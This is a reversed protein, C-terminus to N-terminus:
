DNGDKMVSFILPFIITADGEVYVYKADEKIKGWSVAERVKAGSLSGDYETATSVYVAYDLGDRLINAGITHHKSVGGGLIIGGTKKSGMVIDALNKMDGTIDISFDPNEQKFFYIQLGMAGDTFAPCFIPINNKSAWYIISNEDDIIKGMEGIIESPSFAKGTKKQKDYINRFFPQIKKEFWVYRDNPVFVNGIRNIGKKRLDSDDADFKGLLFPNGTKMLDEEISGVSTVIVDIMKHRTMYAFIERLGSSVMNSTFSLFIKCDDKQMNRIVDAANSLHTAQFGINKMGSVLDSVKEYDTVGKIVDLGNDANLERRGRFSISREIESPSFFEEIKSVAGDVDFENCSFIDIYAHTKEPYTHISIHSETIIVFGTIGSEESKKHEYRVVTPDCLKKMNLFNVIENLFQKIKEIDNLAEKDCGYCDLYLHNGEGHIHKVEM